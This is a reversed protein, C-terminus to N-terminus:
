KKGLVLSAAKEGYASTLFYRLLPKQANPITMIHAISEWAAEDKEGAQFLQILPLMGKNNKINVTDSNALLKIIRPNPKKCAELLPSNGESDTLTADAHHKMLCAVSAEHELAFFLASRETKDELMRNVSAGKKILKEMTEIDGRVAAEMLPTPVESVEESIPEVAEAYIKALEEASHRRDFRKEFYSTYPGSIKPMRLAHMFGAMAQYSTAASLQDVVSALMAVRLEKTKTDSAHNEIAKYIPAIATIMKHKAQKYRQGRIGSRARTILFILTTAHVSMDHVFEAGSSVLLDHTAYTWLFEEDTAVGKSDRIHLEPLDPEKERLHAWRASLAERDPLTLIYTGLGKDYVFSFGLEQVLQSEFSVPNQLKSETNISLFTQKIFELYERLTASQADVTIPIDKKFQNNYLEQITEKRKEPDFENNYAEMLSFCFDLYSTVIRLEGDLDKHSFSAGISGADLEIAPFVQALKCVTEILATAAGVEKPDVKRHLRFSYLKGGYVDRRSNICNWLAGSKEKIDEKQSALVKLDPLSRTRKLVRPPESTEQGLVRRLLADSHRHEKKENTTIYVEPFKYTAGNITNM